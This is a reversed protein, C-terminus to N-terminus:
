QVSEKRNPYSIACGIAKTAPHAVPQGAMVAALADRLDLVTPRLRRTGLREVSNDIRGLYFLAGAGSLVAAEPTVTAGVHRSLIQDPDFLVPFRYDFERAHRFAEDRSVSTDALVAYVRAGLPEYQAAIRNMEPVYGNSLPCDNTIFFLVVAKASSWESDSHAAGATDYLVFSLRSGARAPAPLRLNVALLILGAVRHWGGPCRLHTHFRM